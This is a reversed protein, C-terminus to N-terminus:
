LVVIKQVSIPSYLIYIGSSLSALSIDEHTTLLCNGNLSFLRLLLRSPNLINQGVIRIDESSMTIIADESFPHTTYHVDVHEASPAPFLVLYQSEPYLKLTRDGFWYQGQSLSACLCYAMSDAKM